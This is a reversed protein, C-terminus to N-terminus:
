HRAGRYDYNKNSYIEKFSNITQEKMYNYYDTIIDANAEMLLKHFEDDPINTFNVTLLELNKHKAYFDAPGELLGEKIAHYYLPSGPYPTVPRITRLQGYDNYKTLLDLSKRLSQITDGLNGFIINFAVFIGAKQTCEIAKIIDEETQQKNMAALAKNDFQEIGYDIFVCGSKKMIELIEPSAINVRGTCFYKINLEAKIFAESLEFARKKSFMFLEDVFHVFTIGYDKKYKKIEEVISDASRFRIGKELRMCFNCHYNCGRSSVMYIMRETPSMGYLKSNIYYEMPLIDYYPFPITDLDRIPQARKNVVVTDGDRYAIGEVNKLSTNSELARLLNLFPVEGDGMVAVDARMQDIFFAPEPTPGHGGLVILPRNSANNIADCIKKIKSYQFYGAAFGIAAVDFRNESLYKTLHEEPYHYVDQSYYTIDDYGHKKAYAAVYCPGVPM